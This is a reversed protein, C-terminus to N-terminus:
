DDRKFYQDTGICYGVPSTALQSNDTALSSPGGHESAVRLECSAVEEAVLVHGKAIKGELASRQMFGVMRTHAKQLGDVFPLDAPTALRVTVPARPIPVPLSASPRPDLIADSM